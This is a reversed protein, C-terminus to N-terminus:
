LSNQLPSIAAATSPVPLCWPKLIPRILVFLLRTGLGELVYVDGAGWNSFRPFSFRMPLTLYIVLSPLTKVTPISGSTNILSLVDTWGILMWTRSIVPLLIIYPLVYFNQFNSYYFVLWKSSRFSSTQQIWFGHCELQVAGLLTIEWVRRGQLTPRPVLSVHQSTKDQGWGYWYDLVLLLALSRGTVASTVRQNRNQPMLVLDLRRPSSLVTMVKWSFM